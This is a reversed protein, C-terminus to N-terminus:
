LEAAKIKRYLTARSIGLQRAAQAINQGHDDLAQQILQREAHRINSLAKKSATKATVAAEELFDEPLHLLLIHRTDDVFALAAKLVNRLQRINGRWHHRHFLDLVTKDLTVPMSQEEHLIRTILSELDTRERLPPLRVRLGNIRYYLDERFHGQEVHAMLKRNTACILTINVPISKSSGLPTIDREQLVRLLRAQLSMPMEGIEDLFLTGNNAQLIKGPVGKRKAGTFAGEEYGFLEAEILGEPISACNIAVFPNTHRASALHISKALMEKGTGTEGEILIPIGKEIVKKVMLIAHHMKEDGTNLADLPRFDPRMTEALSRSPATARPPATTFGTDLRAHLRLGTHTALQISPAAARKFNDLMAPLSGDFIGAFVLQQLNGGNLGLQFLGIKNAALLRGDASFVAMGEWLTGLFEPRMHFRIIIDHPFESALLRNEIMQASMRVMSMTHAQPQHCDNSIDLIGIAQGHHDLIPAASCTLFANQEFYHESGEVRVPKREVLATGIANTGTIEERWSVGPQLAVRQAKNIFDSDGLSHLITGFADTLIVMSNTGVIQAYLSDMAPLAQNLLHANRQWIEKFAETAIPEISSPTEASLGTTMCRSWSREIPEPLLGEPVVGHDLLQTRATTIRHSSNPSRAM